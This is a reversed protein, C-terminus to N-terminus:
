LKMCLEWDRMSVLYQTDWDADVKKIKTYNYVGLIESKSDNLIIFHMCRKEDM